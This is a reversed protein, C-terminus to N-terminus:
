CVSLLLCFGDAACAVGIRVLDCTREVGVVSSLHVTSNEVLM